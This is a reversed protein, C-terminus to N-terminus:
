HPYSPHALRSRRRPSGGRSRGPLPLRATLIDRLQELEGAAIEDLYSQDSDSEIGWLGPSRIEDRIMWGGQTTPIEIEAIAYVGVCWWEGRNYADLRKRDQAVYEAIEAAPLGKYNEADGLYSLDADTDITQEIRVRTIQAPLLNTM